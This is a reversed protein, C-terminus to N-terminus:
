REIVWREEGNAIISPIQFPVEFTTHDLYYDDLLDRYHPSDRDFIVGGPLAMWSRM